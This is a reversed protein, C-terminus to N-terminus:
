ALDFDVVLILEAEWLRLAFTSSGVRVALPGGRAARALVVVREGAVFGLDAWRGSPASTIRYACGQVAEALTM